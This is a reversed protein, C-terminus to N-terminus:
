EKICKVFLDGCLLSPWWNRFPAMFGSGSTKIVKFGQREFLWCFKRMTFYHIHGGDWGIEEWHYPSSTVPLNGFLLQIRYKIYAINPVEAIVFGGPKLIRYMEQVCAFIDYIHEIVAICIIADFYNDDFPMLADANGEILKFKNMKLHALENIKKEAKSLRSPSVDVGHLEEFRDHLRILLSADGCGIDLIAGGPSILKEALDHRHWDYKRLISRLGFYKNPSLNNLKGDGYQVEYIKKYDM